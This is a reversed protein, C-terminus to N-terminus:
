ELKVVNARGTARRCKYAAHVACQVAPVAESRCTRRAQRPHQGGRGAPQLVEIDRPVTARSRPGDLESLGQFVLHPHSSLKLKGSTNAGATYPWDM